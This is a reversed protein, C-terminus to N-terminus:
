IGSIDLAVAIALTSQDLATHLDVRCCAVTARDVDKRRAKFACGTAGRRDGARGTLVRM